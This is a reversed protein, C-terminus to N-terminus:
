RGPAGECRNEGANEKELRAVQAKLAEIEKEQQQLAAVAMSIYGYLDVRERTPLVAPSGPPMDEIIFGLHMAGDDQAYRYTAMRMSLLEERLREARRDDIYSIDRKFRASSIPCASNTLNWVGM